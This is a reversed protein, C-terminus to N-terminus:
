LPTTTAQRLGDRYEFHAFTADILKEIDTFRGDRTSGLVIAAVPHALGIDFVVALNGGALDTFGTKSGILWPIRAAAENTNVITHALGNRSIVTISEKRTNELMEPHERIIYRLLQAVDRASGYAGGIFAESIDLGTSNIFHTRTLGLEHATENMLATISRPTATSGTFAALTGALAEAGDNSSSVLTLDILDRTGFAEGAYLGTDGEAELSTPTIVVTNGERLYEHAILATMLKTLSALPLEADANKDYLVTDTRLDVVYAAAGDLSLGIFPSTQPEVRRTGESPVVEEIEASSLSAFLAPVAIFQVILFSLTLAVQQRKWLTNM